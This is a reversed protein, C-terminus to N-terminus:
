LRKKLVINRNMCLYDESNLIHGELDEVWAHASFPFREVGVYLINKHGFVYLVFHLSLSSIMCDNRHNAFVKNYYKTFIRTVDELNYCNKTKLVKSAQKMSQDFCKKYIVSFNNSNKTNNKITILVKRMIRIDVLNM